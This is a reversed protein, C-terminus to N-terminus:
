VVEISHDLMTDDEFLARLTFRRDALLWYGSGIM